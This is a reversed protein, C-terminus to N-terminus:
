VDTIGRSTFRYRGKIIFLQKGDSSVALVPASSERFVHEYEKGDDHAIYSIATVDGVLVLTDHDPFRITDVSDVEMGHFNKFLRKGDRLRKERSM